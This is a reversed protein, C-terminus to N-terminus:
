AALPLAIQAVFGQPDNEALMLQAADGYMLKLRSRINELGVGSGPIDSVGRGTDAVTLQLM